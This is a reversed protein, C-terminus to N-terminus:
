TEFHKCICPPVDFFLVWYLNIIAWFNCLFPISYNMSYKLYKYKLFLSHCIMLLEICIHRLKGSHPCWTLLFYSAKPFCVKCKMDRVRKRWLQLFVPIYLVPNQKLLHVVSFFLSCFKWRLSCLAFYDWITVTMGQRKNISTM